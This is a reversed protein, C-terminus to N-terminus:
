CMQLPSVNNFNHIHIARNFRNYLLSYKFFDTYSCLKKFFSMPKFTRQLGTKFCQFRKVYNLKKPGLSFTWCIDLLIHWKFKFHREFNEDM